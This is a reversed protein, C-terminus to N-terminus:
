STPGRQSAFRSTNTGAKWGCGRAVISDRRCTLLFQGLSRVMSIGKMALDQSALRMRPLLGAEIDISDMSQERSGPLGRRVQTVMSEVRPLAHLRHGNDHSEVRASTHTANLYRQRCHARGLLNLGSVGDERRKRKWGANGFVRQGWNQDRRRVSQM